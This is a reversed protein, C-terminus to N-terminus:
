GPEPSWVNGVLESPLHDNGVDVDTESGEPYIEQLTKESWSLWRWERRPGFAKRQDTVHRIHGGLMLPFCETGPRVLVALRHVKFRYRLISVRLECAIDNADLDETLWHNDQVRGVVCKGHKDTKHVRHGGRYV